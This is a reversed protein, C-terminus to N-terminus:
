MHPARRAQAPWHSRCLDHAAKVKRSRKPHWGGDGGKGGGKGGPETTDAADGDGGGGSGGEDGSERKRKEGVSDGAGDSVGSPGAVPVPAPVHAAAELKHLVAVFFGGTDQFHPLFRMCRELHVAKATEPPPPFFSPKFRKRDAEALESYQSYWKGGEGGRDKVRGLAACTPLPTRSPTRAPICLPVPLASQTRARARLRAHAHSHTLSLAHPTSPSALPPTPPSDTSQWTHLGASRRLTPM